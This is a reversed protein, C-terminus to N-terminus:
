VHEYMTYMSINWATVAQTDAKLDINRLGGDRVMTRLSQFSQTTGSFFLFFCVSITSILVKRWIKLFYLYYM